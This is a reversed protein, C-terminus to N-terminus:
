AQKFDVLIYRGGTHDFEGVNSQNYYYDFRYFDEKHEKFANDFAQKIRKNYEDFSENDDRLLFIKLGNKGTYTCPGVDYCDNYLGYYSIVETNDDYKTEILKYNYIDKLEFSTDAYRIYQSESDYYYSDFNVDYKFRNDIDNTIQLDSGFTNILNLKIQSFTISYDAGHFGGVYMKEMNSLGSLYEQLNSKDSKIYNYLLLYIDKGHNAAITDDESSDSEEVQKETDKLVEKRNISEGIFYGGLGSLVVCFVVVLTFYLSKKKDM